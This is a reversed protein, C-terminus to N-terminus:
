GLLTIEIAVVGYTEEEEKTYYTLMDEPCATAIEDERYGCRDLPLAEYLSAFSPFRHLAVVKATLAEGSEAETFRLTDGVRIKQRKEDYLRLELTKRGERIAAFPKPCLKMEHIM